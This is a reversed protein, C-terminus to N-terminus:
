NLKFVVGLGTGPAAGVVSGWQMTLDGADSIADFDFYAVPMDNALPARTNTDTGAGSDGSSADAYWMLCGVIPTTSAGIAGWAVDTAKLYSFGNTGTTTSLAWRANKVLGAAAGGTTYNALSGSVETYSLGAMNAADAHTAEVLATTLLLCRLFDATDTEVAGAATTELDMYPRGGTTGQEQSMICLKAENFIFNAM